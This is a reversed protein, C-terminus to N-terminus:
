EKPYKASTIQLKVQELGGRRVELCWQTLLQPHLYMSCSSLSSIPKFEALCTLPFPLSFNYLLTPPLIPPPHLFPSPLPFSRLFLSSTFPSPLLYSLDTYRAVFIIPSPSVKGEVHLVVKSGHCFGFRVRFTCQTISGCTSLLDKPFAAGVEAFRHPPLKYM